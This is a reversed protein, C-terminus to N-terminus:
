GWSSFVQSMRQMGYAQAAIPRRFVASENGGDTRPQVEAPRITLVVAICLGHFAPHNAQVPIIGEHLAVFQSQAETRIGAVGGLNTVPGIAAVLVEGDLRVVVEGYGVVDGNCRRHEPNVIGVAFILNVTGVFKATEDLCGELESEDRFLYVPAGRPAKKPMFFPANAGKFFLLISDGATRARELLFM